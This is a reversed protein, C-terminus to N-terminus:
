RIAITAAASSQGAATLVVPVSDGAVVGAPIIANVQYLGTTSPTLGSFQVQANVGGITVSVPAVTHSVSTLPAAVGATVPPDVAGLGTCYIVIPDGTKAANGPAIIKNGVDVIIAQTGDTTFIGPAAPAIIVSQPVSISTGRAALVQQTSNVPLGFPVMANVQGDSAFLLPAKQGGILISGGGLSSPLPTVTAAGQSDVLKSGYLAILSGPALSQANSSAANVVGGSNITPTQDAGQQGLKISIRGTLNQDPIVAQATLELQSQAHRSTWTGAWTGDKLSILRLTPDGNSFLVTVGGTTMPNACDDVVKVAVQGPYGAPISQGDSLLLFVPVLTTPTCGAIKATLKANSATASSPASPALVLVLAINRSSGDSFALTVNGRYVGPPLGKIVPQILVRAPLAGVTGNDPLAQFLLSGNRVVSSATFNLPSGSTNQVLVTQSGPAEGGAVATFLLGTPQVVPGTKTGPAVVNLEVSVFQPSNDSESATVQITGYYVGPQLSSPDIDVRIQPVLPQAADTTGTAPFAGLWYGGTLTQASVSWRMQGQGANLINFFQPLVAGFTSGQVAYFALGTQPIQITQQVASVTMTVPVTLKQGLSASAITVAGAYTGPILGNPDATITLSVSGFPGLTASTDGKGTVAKLWATGASTSVAITFPLSGGGSNSVSIPRTRTAAGQVYSFDLSTPSLKLTPADAATVTLSVPLTQTFPKAIAEVTITGQYSGPELASADASVHLNSPMAGDPPSVQLWKADASAQWLLGPISGSLAIAQETATGGAPAFLSIGSPTASFDPVDKLIVRVRNFYLDNVLLDGSAAQLVDFPTMLCYTSPLGDDPYQGGGGFTTITGDGSVRRIRANNADAIYLNGANDFTIGYPNDLSAKTSPGGDGAFGETGNGAITEMLRASTLSIRRVVNNYTDSFYLYNGFVRVGSPNSVRAKLSDGGDGSYGATGDGAITLITGNVVIRIRHGTSETIALNGADDVAVGSPENLMAKTAPGADGGYGCQGTGAITTIIGSTDIRRVVCNALDAVILSGDPAVALGQPQNLLAKTAPGGDGAYGLSGGGAYVSITHDPAIRRIRGYTPESVFINGSQDQALGWPLYLTASTAPGGNGAFRFLGNGAVTNVNGATDVKRVRGNGEDGVYINGSADVVLSPSANFSFRAKLAPGNDGSFGSVGNGAITTVIGAQDIKRVSSTTRDAIVLGGRPDVAVALAVLSSKTAAVGDGATNGGGAVTTIIGQADIKRVLGIIKEPTNAGDVFYINGKGDLAIRAPGLLQAATAPGGDGKWASTGNGALTRVVGDPTIKWIRFNFTDAVFISGDDAVALGYPANFSAATAPGGDGGFGSGGGAITRIIGDATVKRITGISDAVYINGSRDLAMATPVYISANVAPGGDGTLFRSVVGNGAVVNIIGDAGVRMVMANGLDCLYLNGQADLAIDPGNSASLPANVAKQGDSPFFWDTGALTTVVGQGRLLPLSTLILLTIRRLDPM